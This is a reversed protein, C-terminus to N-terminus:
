SRGPNTPHVQKPQAPGRRCRMAEVLLSLARRAGQNVWDRGEHQKAINEIEYQWEKDVLDRIETLTVAAQSITPVPGPGAHHTIPPLNTPDFDSTVQMTGMCEPDPALRPLMKGECADIRNSLELLEGGLNPALTRDNYNGIRKTQESM